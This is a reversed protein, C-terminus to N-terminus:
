TNLTTNLTTKPPTRKNQSGRCQKSLVVVWGWGECCWGCWFLAIVNAGYHWDGYSPNVVAQLFAVVCLWSAYGAFDVALMLQKDVQPEKTTKRLGYRELCRAFGGILEQLLLAYCAWLLTYAAFRAGLPLAAVAPGLSPLM